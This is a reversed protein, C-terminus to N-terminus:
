AVTKKAEAVGVSITSIIKKVGDVGVSRTTINKFVGDVDVRPPQQTQVTYTFATRGDAGGGGPSATSAGGSSGGGGPASGSNGAIGGATATGGAGGVLEGISAAAGGAGSTGIGGTEGPSGAATSDGLSAPKIAMLMGWMNSASGFTMTKNGSAGAAAQAASAAHMYAAATSHATMTSSALIQNNLKGVSQLLLTNPSTTTVALTISTAAVNTTNFVDFPDGEQLAGNIQHSIWTYYAASGGIPFTVTLAGSGETIVTGDVRAYAIAHATGHAYKLTWNTGPMVPTGNALFTVVILNGKVRNGPLTVVASTAGALYTSATVFNVLTPAPMGAISGGAGVSGNGIGPGGGRARLNHRILYSDGGALATGGSPAGTGSAGNVGEIVQGPTLNGLLRRGAGGGGGGSGKITVRGRDGGGGGGIQDCYVEYVGEPVTWQFPGPATILDTTM